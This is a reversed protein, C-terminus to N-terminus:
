KTYTMGLVRIEAAGMSTLVQAVTRMTSGTEWLDDVLLIQRGAVPDRYRPQIAAALASERQDKGLDKMPVTRVKKIVVAAPAPVGLVRAIREALIQAPQRYRSVSPPPSVVCDIDNPWRSRIFAVATEVIDDPAGGRNKFRYVLEGLASRTTDFRPHGQPDDGIHVSHLTHKDLVVGDVWPGKVIVPHTEIVAMRNPTQRWECFGSHGNSLSACRM